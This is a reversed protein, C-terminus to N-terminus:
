PELHLEQIKRTITNRGIGLREAAEVKRGRTFDLAERIVAAEFRRALEDMVDASNERLLRAVETRLGSEWMPYGAPAGNPAAAVPAATLPVVGGALSARAADGAAGSGSVGGHADAGDATAAVPTGAPVLDPPLDKIEVTQAPAMVTLWNALNELQRVNGPFPLSTLYALAEDSVRKPEVGLDRASKQLFHRTLLAIDESRERLPPLRLRIVNLRHYLDERFLGQRVRAELNQHTAAIVRVNARLPNHGGVRYFQGDSLVRLLRTQLDFPMDGIEDLFLTGNEAQEFRGQRTTQAGTFAGREHGFLESELLDKPIAATNLAIFPGNARPSHRHLARAVLEKGTGSEGTILVTAASHSLRGIARFMDQMAPAQGLMEPAEAVREDQPAGGRLSEEVARRILEVAKDVDFPKALYEFAGGQFAAVASDLDSFATMIIVPLGPLREHMAQLLELGSGGPMRIDSVLVQPTEHDLAALADRVNAFSKTAFSDRALAKELVWRISQDDDVIWIPKM